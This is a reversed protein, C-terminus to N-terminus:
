NAVGQRCSGISRAQYQRLFEVDHYLAAAIKCPGALQAAKLGRFFEWWEGVFGLVPSSPLLDPRIWGQALYRTFQSRKPWDAGSLHYRHMEHWIRQYLDHNVIAVDVDSTDGFPRWRKNPAVSFGLKASGVVFIDTSPELQFQSAIRSKIDFHQQESIAYCGGHFVYREVIEADDGTDVLAARFEEVRVGISLDM